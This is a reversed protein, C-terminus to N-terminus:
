STRRQSPLVDKTKALYAKLWLANGIVSVDSLAMAAAAIMPGFNGLLGFAAAPIAAINYVFSMTLNQKITRLTARSLQITEGIAALRQAPIVIDASEIAINTGTGIAIGVGANAGAEALAAADNIGDGVMAVRMGQRSLERVLEGKSTPTAESRVDSSPIGVQIAIRESVSQRDGSVLMVRIGAQQLRRVSTAADPRLQDEFTIAGWVEGNVVLLSQTGSSEAISKPIALGERTAVSTSILEVRQGISNGILGRGSIETIDTFAQPNIKREGAALVVAGSLPHRSSVALGAAMSLLEKEDGRLVNMASVKPRGITLTGTKDFLVADLNAARELSAASKILIGRKSAAGAGVMIATPTALGLACPCSIVLVTTGNILASAWIQWNTSQGTNFGYVLWGVITLGAVAIVAPVFIACVRDALRAIQAKSSQARRVMEAIRAITTDRGDTTASIILRGTTNLSGAVVNAGLGKEVPLSEGTVISEDIASEGSVIEGDVAIRDGPQILLLDGPRVEASDIEVSQQADLAEVRQAKEPQLGLLERLASSASAMTRAELWHGLSVLALLGAGAEFYVPLGPRLGFTEAVFVILSFGWAVTSGLAILTDMNTTFKSAAKGASAYFAWGVYAQSITALIASMWMIAIHFSHSYTVLGLDMPMHFISIPLWLLIGFLARRKWALADRRQKQELESRQESVSRKTAIQTASFGQDSIAKIISASNMDAGQVHATGSTLDVSASAVGSVSKIAGEVQGICGACHMGAVSFEISGKGTSCVVHTSSKSEIGKVESM